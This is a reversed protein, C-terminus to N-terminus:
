INSALLSGALDLALAKAETIPIAEGETWAQEFVTGSLVAKLMEIQQSHRPRRYPPVPTRIDRRERDASAILVVARQHEGHDSLSAAIAELCDLIGEGDPAVNLAKGHYELAATRDGQALCVNGLGLMTRQQVFVDDNGQLTTQSIAEELLNGATTYDGQAFRLEALITLHDGIYIEQTKALALSEEIYPEASDYDGQDLLCKGMFQLEQSLGDIRGMQRTYRLAEQLHSMAVEYNGSRHEVLTLLDLAATLSRLNGSARCLAICQEAHQKCLSLDSTVELEVMKVLANEVLRQEGTKRGLALAEELNTRAEAHRGPLIQFKGLAALAWSLAEKDDTERALGAAQTGLSLAETDDGQIYALRGAAVLGKVRVGVPEAGPLCLLGALWRRGETVYARGLWFQTLSAGLRLGLEIAGNSQAWRLAGRLNEVELELRESWSSAEWGWLAEDAREALAASWALMNDHARDSENHDLLLQAAYERVTELLRYRLPGGTDVLVVLSKAVLDSLVEFIADASTDDGLISAAADATFSGAFVSLHRLAMQAQKDLLCYSWDIVAALTQHRPPSTRLGRNLLALPHDLRSVLDALGITGLRAAALEIALPLGDLRWVIDTIAGADEVGIGLEHRAALARDVFLRVADYGFVTVPDERAQERSPASLAPVRWVVEGDVRLPGRSAALAVMEPTAKLLRKVVDAIADLLHECNDVLVLLSRRAVFDVLCDLASRNLRLPVGLAVAFAEPVLEPEHLPALDVLWVGDRFGHLARSAVELALRSKGVGGPGTLTVVRQDIVLKNLAALEDARGIFPSLSAPLNHTPRAANVSSTAVDSPHRATQYTRGAPPPSWDLAQDQRLVAEELSQIAPSASIGLQNVLLERLRTCARLAEAQRGCRYLALVLQAWRRERLPEESVAAELDGVLRAHEGLSLRGEALEELAGRRLEELRVVEASAWSLATLERCPPGRWLGLGERLLAVAARLDGEERREDAQHLAKEFRASDVSGADVLLCYGDNTKVLQGPPLVRRLRSMYIQLAKSASPPESEGWLGACLTEARVTHGARLALLELLAREKPAGIVIAGRDSSLELPGLLAVRVASSM